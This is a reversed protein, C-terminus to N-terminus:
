SGRTMSGATTAETTTRTGASHANKVDECMRILITVIIRMTHVCGGYVIVNGGEDVTASHLCRAPPLAGDGGGDVRLTTWTLTHLDLLHADNRQVKGDFGGFVLLASRDGARVLVCSHSDRGAPPDGSTILPEWGAGGLDLAHVDNLFSGNYGGFIIVRGDPTSAATHGHRKSPPTGAM